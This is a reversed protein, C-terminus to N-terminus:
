YKPVMEGQLFPITQASSGVKPRPVGPDSPQGHAWLHLLLSVPLLSFASHPGSLCFPHCSQSSPASLCAIMEQFMHKGPQTIM